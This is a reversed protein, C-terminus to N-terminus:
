SDSAAKLRAKLRSVPNDGAAHRRLRLPPTGPAVNVAVGGCHDREDRVRFLGHEGIVVPREDSRQRLDAIVPHVRSGHTQRLWEVNQDVGPRSLNDLLVVEFDRNCSLFAELLYQENWFRRGRTVWERPYEFPLFIDHVHVHVGPAGAEGWPGAGPALWGNARLHGGADGEGFPRAAEPRHQQGRRLQTGGHADGGVGGGRM